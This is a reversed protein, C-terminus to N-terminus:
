PNCERCPKYQLENVIYDHGQKEVVRNEPAITRINVCGLTHFKKTKTNLVFIFQGDDAYQRDSMEAVWLDFLEFLQEEDCEDFVQQVKQAQQTSRWESAAAATCLLAFCIVLCIVKKM